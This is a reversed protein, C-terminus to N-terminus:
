GTEVEASEKSRRKRPKPSPEPAPPPEDEISEQVPSQDDAKAEPATKECYRSEFWNKM